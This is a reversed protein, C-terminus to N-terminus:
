SSPEAAGDALQQRLRQNEEELESLRAEARLRAQSDDEWSPIPAGTHPDWWELLGHEWRIFLDLAPSYGQLIGPATEEVPMPRYADGDLAEGALGQGYYEGSSDFRWYEPIGLAAYNDRKVGTDNGATSPSAVEMIFDPPKGQKSIIYGNHEAYMKASVNFAVLLDPRRGETRNNELSAVIWLDYEVLTTAPNNFYRALRQHSGPQYIYRFATVEDPERPPPDPLRHAATALQITNKTTM